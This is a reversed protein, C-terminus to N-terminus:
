IFFNTNIKEIEALMKQKLDDLTVSSEFQNYRYVFLDKWDPYPKINTNQCIGIEFTCEKGDWVAFKCEFLL